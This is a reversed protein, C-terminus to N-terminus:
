ETEGQVTRGQLSQSTETQYFNNEKAFTMVDAIVQKKGQDITRSALSLIGSEAETKIAENNRKRVCYLGFGEATELRYPESLGLRLGM